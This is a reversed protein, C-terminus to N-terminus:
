AGGVARRTHSATLPTAVARITQVSSLAGAAITPPLVPAAGNSRSTPSPALLVGSHTRIPLPAGIDGYGVNLPIGFSVANQRIETTPSMAMQTTGVPMVQAVGNGPLRRLSQVEPFFPSGPTTAALTRAQPTMRGFSVVAPTVPSWSPSCAETSCAWPSMAAPSPAAACAGTKVVPVFAKPLELESAVTSQTAMRGVPMQISRPSTM